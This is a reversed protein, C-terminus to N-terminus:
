CVLHETISTCPLACLILVIRTYGHWLCPLLSSSVTINEMFQLSTLAESDLIQLREVTVATCLGLRTYDPLDAPVELIRRTNGEEDLWVSCTRDFDILVTAPPGPLGDGDTVVILIVRSLHLM